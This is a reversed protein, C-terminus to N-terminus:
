RKASGPARARCLCPLKAPAGPSRIVPRASYHVVFPEVMSAAEARGQRPPNVHLSRAGLDARGDSADGPRGEDGSERDQQHRARSECLVVNSWAGVRSAVGRGAQVRWRRARLAANGFRRHAVTLRARLVQRRADQALFAARVSAPDVRVPLQVLLQLDALSASPRPAETMTATICIRSTRAQAPARDRSATARLVDAAAAIYADVIAPAKDDPGNWDCM